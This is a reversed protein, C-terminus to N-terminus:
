CETGISKTPVQLANAFQVTEGRESVCMCREQNWEPVGNQGKTLSLVQAEPTVQAKDPLAPAALRRDHLLERLPLAQRERHQREEFVHGSSVQKLDRQTPTQIRM